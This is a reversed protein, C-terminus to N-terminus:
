KVSYLIRLCHFLFITYYWAGAGIACAAVEIFIPVTLTFYRMDLDPCFEKM